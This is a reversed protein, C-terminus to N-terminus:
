AEQSPLCLTGTFMNNLCKSIDCFWGLHFTRQAWAQCFLKILTFTILCWNFSCLPQPEPVLLVGSVLSTSERSPWMGGDRTLSSGPTPLNVSDSELVKDGWGVVAFLFNNKDKLNVVQWQAGQLNDMQSVWQTVIDRQLTIIYLGWQFPSVFFLSTGM